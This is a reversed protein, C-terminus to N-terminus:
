AMHSITTGTKKFNLSPKIKSITTPIGDTWDATVQTVSDITVTDATINNWIVEATYGTTKFGTGTIVM